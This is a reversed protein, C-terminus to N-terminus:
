KKQEAKEILCQLVELEEADFWILGCKQCEDIEIHYAYSYFRHVMPRGCKGCPRPHAMDLLMKLRPHKRRGEEALVDTLRIVQDSFSRETRVIIRPLVDRDVLYGNCFPCFHLNLGEYSEVIMWQRCVPCIRRMKWLPDERAKFYVALDAVQDARMDAESGTIRLRSDPMLWELTMLQMVLYPGLWQGNHEVLFGPEDGPGADAARVRAKAQAIDRNLDEIGAHGMDLLVRLRNLLPPHTSFLNAWFHDQEELSNLDPSLIFIASLHEGGFGAGRWHGGISHLAHALSLPDRSYRVAAADARYEKARSIFVNLLQSILDIIFVLLVAPVALAAASAKREADEPCGDNAAHGFLERDDRRQFQDLIQGYVAFLSCTVTTLLSDGSAIHAMEHAVVSTLEARKLRSLLGETVGVVKRGKLDALAFANMASTPLVYRDVKIGGAAVEIEDVINQFVQHYRDHRDPTRARLLQLVRETVRSSSWYWHVVSAGLAFLLVLITDWGLFSLGSRGSRIMIIYKAFLWVFYIPIFYLIVLVALVAYIKWTKEQEIEWFTKVM